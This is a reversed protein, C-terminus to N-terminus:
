GKMRAAKRAAREATKFIELSLESEIDDLVTYKTAEWAPRMFPQAGHFENGFEQQVGVRSQSTSPGIYVQVPDFRVAKRAKTSTQIDAALDGFESPALATAKAEMSTAASKLARRAVRKSTAGEMQMLAKELDKLGEVKLSTNM